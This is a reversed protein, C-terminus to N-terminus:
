SKATWQKFVSNLNADAPAGVFLAVAYRLRVSKGAALLSVIRAAWLALEEDRHVQVARDGKPGDRDDGIWRLFAFAPGLGEQALALWSAFM